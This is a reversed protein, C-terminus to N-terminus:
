RRAPRPPSRAHRSTSAADRFPRRHREVPEARHHGQLVQRLSGHVGAAELVGEESRPHRAEVEAEQDQSLARDHLRARLPRAPLSLPQEADGHRGHRREAHASLM